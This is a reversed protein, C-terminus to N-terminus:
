STCLKCLNSASRGADLCSEGNMGLSPNDDDEEDGNLEVPEGDEYHEDELETDCIGLSVVTYWHAQVMQEPAGLSPEGDNDPEFDPEGDILDLLAILEEIRTEIARRTMAGPHIM